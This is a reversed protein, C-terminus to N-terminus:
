MGCAAMCCPRVLGSEAVLCASQATCISRTLQVAELVVDDAAADLALHGRLWTLLGSGQLIPQWDIGYLHHSALVALVEVMLAEDTTAQTSTTEHLSSMQAGARSSFPRTANTIVCPNCSTLCNFVVDQLSRLKVIVPRMQLLSTGSVRHAQWAM